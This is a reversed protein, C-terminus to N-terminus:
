KKKPPPGGQANIVANVADNNQKVDPHDTGDKDIVANVISSGAGKKPAKAERTATIEKLTKPDEIVLALADYTKLKDVARVNFEDTRWTLTHQEADSPGYKNEM